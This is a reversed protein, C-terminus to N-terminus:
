GAILEFTLVIPGSVGGILRELDAALLRRAPVDGIISRVDRPALASVGDFGSLTVEGTSPELAAHRGAVGTLVVSRHGPDESMWSLAAQVSVTSSPPGPESRIEDRGTGLAGRRAGVVVAIAYPLAVIVLGGIIAELPLPHGGIGGPAGTTALISLARLGNGV